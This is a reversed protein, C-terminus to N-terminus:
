YGGWDIEKDVAPRDDGYKAHYCAALGKRAKSSDMEHNSWQPTRGDAAVRCAIATRRAANERLSAALVATWAEQTFM